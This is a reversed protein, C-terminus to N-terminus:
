RAGGLPRKRAMGARRPFRSPTPAIKRYLYLSHAVSGAYPESRVAGESRLGLLSCAGAAARAEGADVEGKWAVLIGGSALLPAAYECLVDLPAVARATVLDNVGAGAGWEEARANVVSANEIAAADVARELFGCKRAVSEVLAVSAEPLAIALVLGPFGAGTGIDSITRASRVPELALATLSDAVHVDLAAAGQVATPAHQDRELLELLSALQRRQIEGLSWRAVLEALAASM